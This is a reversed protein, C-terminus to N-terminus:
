VIKRCLVQTNLQFFNCYLYKRMSFTKFIHNNNIECHSRKEHETHKINYDLMDSEKLKSILSLNPELINTDCTTSM